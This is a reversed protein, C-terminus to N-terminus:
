EGLAPKYWCLSRMGVLHNKSLTCAGISTNAKDFEVDFAVECLAGQYYTDTRCQGKPHNHNTTTVVSTDPTEISPTGQNGLAALTKGLSLGAMASRLCIARLQLDNNSNTCATKVADSIVLGADIRAQMLAVNDDEAWIRRACKTTAFYDSQGENSAWGSRRPAGGLHHGMEHCAVMAFGDATVHEHRALGGFMKIIWKSGQQQAQANVTSDSWAKRLEFTKGLATVIPRYHADVRALISNFQEETMDNANVAGVNIKMDNEPAFKCEHKADATAILPLFLLSLVTIKLM